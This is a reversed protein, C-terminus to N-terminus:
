GCFQCLNPIRVEFDVYTKIKLNPIRIWRDPNNRSYECRSQEGNYRFRIYYTRQAILLWWLTSIRETVYESILEIMGRNNSNSITKDRRPSRFITSTPQFIPKGAAIM